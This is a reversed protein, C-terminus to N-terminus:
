RCSRRRGGRGDPRAAGPRRRVGPRDADRRADEREVRVRRPDDAAPGRLAQGGELTPGLQHGVQADVAHVDPAEVRGERGPLGLAEGAVEDDPGQARADDDDALVEAEAGLPGTVERQEAPEPGLQAEADHDVGDRAVRPAAVRAGPRALRHDGAIELLHPADEAARVRERADDGVAVLAAPGDADRGGVEDPDGLQQRGVAHVGHGGVAVELGLVRERRERSPTVFM